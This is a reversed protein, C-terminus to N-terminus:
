VRGQNLFRLSLIIFNLFLSLIVIESYFPLMIFVWVGWINGTSM